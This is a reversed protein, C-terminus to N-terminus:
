TYKHGGAFPELKEDGANQQEAAETRHSRRL